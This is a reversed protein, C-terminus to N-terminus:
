DDGAEFFGREAIEDRLREFETQAKDAESATILHHKKACFECARKVHSLDRAEFAEYRGLSSTPGTNTVVESVMWNPYFVTCADCSDWKPKGACRDCLPAPAFKSVTFCAYHWRIYQGSNPDDKPQAGCDYCDLGFRIVEPRVRDTVCGPHLFYAEHVRRGGTADVVPERLTVVLKLRTVGKPIPKDCVCCGAAQKSFEVFMEVIPPEQTGYIDRARGRPLSALAGPKERRELRLEDGM